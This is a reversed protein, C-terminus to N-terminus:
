PINRPTVRVKPPAKTGQPSGQLVVKKPVFVDEQLTQLTQKFDERVTLLEAELGALKEETKQDQKEMLGRQINLENRAHDAWLIVTDEEINWEGLTEEIHAVREKLTEGSMIEQESVM